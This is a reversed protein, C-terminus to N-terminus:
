KKFLPAMVTISGDANDTVQYQSADEDPEACFLTMMDPEMVQSAIVRVDDPEIVLTKEDRWTVRKPEGNIRCDRTEGVKFQLPMNLVLM